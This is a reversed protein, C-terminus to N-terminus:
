GKAQNEIVGAVAGTDPQQHLQMGLKEMVRMSAPNDLETLAIIRPLRLTRFGYEVLARAAETAYGQNRYRESLAWGIEAEILSYHASVREAGTAFALEDPTCLRPMLLCYGIFRQSQRLYISPRWFQQGLNQQALYLDFRFEPVYAERTFAEGEIEEVLIRYNSEFEDETSPRLLLRETEINQM